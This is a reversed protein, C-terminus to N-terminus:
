GSYCWRKRQHTRHQHALILTKSHMTRHLTTLLATPGLTQFGLITNYVTIMAYVVTFGKFCCLLSYASPRTSWIARPEVFLTILWPPAKINTPLYAPGYSKKM